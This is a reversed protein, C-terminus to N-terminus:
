EVIDGAGPQQPPPGITDRHRNDLLGTFLERLRDEDQPLERDDV